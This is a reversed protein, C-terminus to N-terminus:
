KNDRWDRFADYLSKHQSKAPKKEDDFTTLEREFKIDDIEKLFNDEDDLVTSVTQSSPSDLWSNLTELDDPTLVGAAKKLKLTDMIYDFRSVTYEKRAQYVTRQASLADTMTRIGEQWGVKIARLSSNNSQVARLRAQVSAVDANVQAHYQRTERVSNRLALDKQYRSEQIRHEAEKVQSSTIGGTYLPLSVKVGITTLDSSPTSLSGSSDSHSYNLFLDATPGHLSRKEKREKEAAELLYQAAILSYNRSRAFDEWENLAVPQPPEIPIDQPLPSVTEFYTGTLMALAERVNDLASQAVIVAAKSIDYQAQVEYVDTDRMLGLKYRNKIESLQTRLTKEESQAIRLEEEARLVGFYAEASRIILEQQNLALQAKAANDLSQARKYRHWNEMRLLPQSASLSYNTQRFDESVDVFGVADNQCASLFDIFDTGGAPPFSGNNIGCEVAKDLTLSTSGGDYRNQTWTGGLQAVPLLGGFAQEMKERDALYKQKQAGWEPDNKRALAFIETLNEAFATSNSFFLWVALLLSTTSKIRMM